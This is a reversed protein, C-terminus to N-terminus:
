LHVPRWKSRNEKGPRRDWLNLPRFAGAQFSFLSANPISNLVARSRGLQMWWSNLSYLIDQESQPVFGLNICISYLRLTCGAVSYKIFLDTIRSTSYVTRPHTFRWKLTLVTKRQAIKWLTGSLYLYTLLNQWSQKWAVHCCDKIGTSQSMQM